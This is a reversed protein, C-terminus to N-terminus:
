QSLHRGGPQGGKQGFKFLSLEIGNEEAWAEMQEHHQERLEHKEDASLERWEDKNAERLDQMEQHKEELADRQDTTLTGNEVAEDLREQARQHRQEQREERHETFFERVETEDLNFREVLRQVLSDQGAELGGQASVTDLQSVGYTAGALTTVAAASLAVKKWM